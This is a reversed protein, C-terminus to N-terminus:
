EVGRIVSTMKRTFGLMHKFKSQSIVECFRTIELKDGNPTIVVPIIYHDKEVTDIVKGLVNDAYGNVNVSIYDGIEFPYRKRIERNECREASEYTYYRCECKECQYLKVTELQGKTKVM